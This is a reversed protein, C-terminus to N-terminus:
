MGIVNVNVNLNMNMNMNAVSGVPSVPAIPHQYQAQMARLQEMQQQKVAKVQKREEVEYDIIVPQVSHPHAFYQSQTWTFVDFIQAFCAEVYMMESVLDHCTPSMKLKVAHHIPTASYTKLSAVVNKAAYHDTWQDGITLIHAYEAHEVGDVGDRSVLEAYVREKWQTPTLSKDSQWASRASVRKIRYVDLLAGLERYVPAICAAYSLSEAIWGDVSNTVIHINSAGYKAILSRMLSLTLAGLQQLCEIQDDRVLALSNSDRQVLIENMFTTPYLTDDWDILMLLSEHELAPSSSSQSPPAVSLSDTSQSISDDSSDTTQSTSDKAIPNTDGRKQMTELAFEYDFQTRRCKTSQIHPREGETPTIPTLPTMPSPPPVRPYEMTQNSVFPAATVSLSSLSSVMEHYKLQSTFEDSSSSSDTSNISSM